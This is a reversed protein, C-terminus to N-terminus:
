PVVCFSGSSLMGLRPDRLSSAKYVHAVESPAGGSLLLLFMSCGCKLICIPPALQGGLIFLLLNVFFFISALCVVLLFGDLFWCLVACFGLLGYLVACVASFWLVCETM